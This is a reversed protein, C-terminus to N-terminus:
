KTLSSWVFVMATCPAAGLLAAGALYETAIDPAMFSKFVLFLVFKCNWVYYITQDALKCDLDCIVGKSKKM